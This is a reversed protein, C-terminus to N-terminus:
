RPVEHWFTRWNSRGQVTQINQGTEQGQVLVYDDGIPVVEVPIAGSALQDRRDLTIGAVDNALNYNFVPEAQQLSVAYQYGTGESLGCNGVPASPVFTTFFVKGGSTIATALSKEGSDALPIRWGTASLKDLTTDECSGTAFCDVSLDAFDTPVKTTVPPTGSQVNRDKSAFFWNQVSTDLPNERDGAGLLVADYAGDIDRTGVEADAGFQLRTRQAEHRVATRQDIALGAEV